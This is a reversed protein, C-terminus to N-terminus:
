WRDQMGIVCATQTTSEVTIFFICVTSKTYTVFESIPMIKLVDSGVNRIFM